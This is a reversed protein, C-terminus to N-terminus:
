PQKMQLFFTKGKSIKKLLKECFQVRKKHAENLYFVKIMKRPKGLKGKLIRNILSKSITILEGKKNLINDKKLKKNVEDALVRGNIEALKKNAARKYIFEIYKQPM